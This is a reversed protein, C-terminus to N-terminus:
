QRGTWVFGFWVWILVLLLVLSWDGITSRYFVVKERLEYELHDSRDRSEKSQKREQSSKRGADISTGDVPSSFRSSDVHSRATLRASSKKEEAKKM